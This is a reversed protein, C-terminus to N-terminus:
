PENGYSEGVGPRNEIREAEPLAHLTANEVLLRSAKRSLSLERDSGDVTLRAETVIAVVVRGGAALHDQLRKKMRVNTAQRSYGYRYGYARRRLNAAEGVYSSTGASGTLRFHYIGPGAPLTPFVLQGEVDLALEGVQRWECEVAVNM